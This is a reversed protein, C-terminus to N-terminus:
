SGSPPAQNEEVQVGARSFHGGGLPHEINTEHIIYSYADDDSQQHGFPLGSLPFQGLGVSNIHLCSFVVQSRYSHNGGGSFAAGRYTSVCVHM